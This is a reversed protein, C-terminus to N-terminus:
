EFSDKLSWSCSNFGFGEESSSSGLTRYVNKVLSDSLGLSVWGGIVASMPVWDRGLVCIM